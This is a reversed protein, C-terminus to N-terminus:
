TLIKILNRSEALATIAGIAILLLLCILWLQPVLAATVLAIVAGFASAVYLLSFAKPGDGHRM